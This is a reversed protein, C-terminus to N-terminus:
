SNEQVLTRENELSLLLLLSPPLSRPGSDWDWGGARIMIPIKENLFFLQNLDIIFNLPSEIAPQPVYAFGVLFNTRLYLSKSEFVQVFVIFSRYM